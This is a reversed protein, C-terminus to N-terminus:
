KAPAPATPSAPTEKPKDGGGMSSWIVTGVIALLVVAVIAIIKGRGSAMEKVIEAEDMRETARKPAEVQVAPMMQTAGTRLSLRERDKATLSGDDKYRDEVPLEDAKDSVPIADPSQPAKAAAEAAAADLEGKKFWMTERFKGKQAPQPKESAAKNKGGANGGAAAAPPAAAPPPVFPTAPMAPVVPAAVVPAAPVVPAPVVPAPVVPAAVAPAPVVPAAAPAAAVPPTALISPPAVAPPPVVPAGAAPIAAQGFGIMTAAPPPSANAKGAPLTAAASPEAAPAAAQAAAPEALQELKGGDNPCFNADDPFSTGCTLCRKM